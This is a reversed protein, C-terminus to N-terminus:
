ADKSTEKRAITIYALRRSREWATLFDKLDYRHMTDENTEFAPDHVIVSKSAADWGVVVLLHGQLYPRPASSLPGRVSVVVPIGACLLHHLLKFSELRATVFYAAGKTADFAGAVNFPWSGYAQLGKDFVSEAFVVPDIARGRIFSLLMSCSTPSCLVDNKPHVLMFQSFRPVNPIFISPLQVCAVNEDEAKFRNHDALCVALSKVQKIDASKHPIVTVRFADALTAAGIELRVHIYKSFGDGESLFSTQIGEGWEMMKHWTGWRHTKKDRAQVWFAFYGKTPRWANWSFILQSFPMVDEKVWVYEKKGELDTEHLVKHYLSTWGADDAASLLPSGMLTIVLAVVLIRMRERVRECMM